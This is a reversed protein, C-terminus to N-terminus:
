KAPISVDRSVVHWIWGPSPRNIVKVGYVLTQRTSPLDIFLAQVRRCALDSARQAATTTRYRVAIIHGAEGGRWRANLSVVMGVM